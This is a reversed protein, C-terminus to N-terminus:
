GALNRPWNRRQNLSTRRIAGWESVADSKKWQERFLNLLFARRCNGARVWLLRVSPMISYLTVFDDDKSILICDHDSAYGWIEADGGDRLGVDIVHM